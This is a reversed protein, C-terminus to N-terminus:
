NVSFTHLLQYVQIPIFNYSSQLKDLEFLFTNWFSAGPSNFVVHCHQLWISWKAIVILTNIYPTSTLGNFWESETFNWEYGTAFHLAQQLTSISLLAQPCTCLLHHITEEKLPCLPCKENLFKLNNKVPLSNSYIKYYFEKLKKRIKLKKFYKWTNDPSFEFQSKWKEQVKTSTNNQPSSIIFIINKCTLDSPPLFSRSEPHFICYVNKIAEMMNFPRLYAMNPSVWVPFSNQVSVQSELFRTLYGKYLDCKTTIWTSNKYTANSHISSIKDNSGLEGIFGKVPLHFFEVKKNFILWSKFINNITNSPFMKRHSISSFFLPKDSKRINDVSHLADSLISLATSSTSFMRTFWSCQLAVVKVKVSPLNLGGKDLPLSLRELSVRSKYKIDSTYVTDSSWLFWRIANNINSIQSKTPTDLYAYYWFVPLAYSTLVSVKGLLSLGLYKWRHLKAIFSSTHDDMKSVLKSSDIFYGLYRFYSQTVPIDCINSPPHADNLPIICSKGKNLLAGSAKEYVSVWKFQSQMGRISSSWLTTDDAHLSVHKTHNYIKIPDSDPCSRIACALPEICLIFLLGSIPDGQKSGCLVNFFSSLFGNISISAKFNTILMTIYKSLQAGFGFKSLTKMMFQHNLRDFAKECDLFALYGKIKLKPALEIASVASFVNDLISRNSLYATQDQHIITPLVSKLRAAFISSFIKYDVNLLWIPRWNALLTLDKDPKPILTVTGTNVEEPLTNSEISLLYLQLLHPALDYMFKKYFEPTLGDLGPSSNLPLENIVSLIENFSPPSDCKIKDDHSIKKNVHSLLAETSSFCHPTGSFLKSYFQHAHLLKDPTSTYQKNNLPDKLTTVNKSDGNSKEFKSFFKTPREGELDWKVRSRVQIGKLKEADCESLQLSLADIKALTCKDGPEKDLQSSLTSLQSIIQDSFIAKTKAARSGFKIALHKVM